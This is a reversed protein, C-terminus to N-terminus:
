KKQVPYPLLSCGARQYEKRLVITKKVERCEREVSRAREATNITCSASFM